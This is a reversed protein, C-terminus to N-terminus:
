GCRLGERPVQGRLLYADVADDICGSGRRYATHGDGDYTLLHGNELERALGQAWPYPTAPDRTTGVVVIPGSGHARLPEAHGTSRVPWYACPLESWALFAGWTPAAQRYRPLSRQVAALGGPDPRDLCNVAYIVTNANSRYGDPGRDTLADALLLLTSGDGSLAAQLAQRLVPWYQDDYMAAAVGLVGRGETLPRNPDRTRLPRSDLGAMLGQLRRTASGVDSGLPCTQRAVCDTIFSRTAQEFGQAQGLNVADADLAPDLAGDLVFRGVNGPFEDAYTAGLFTGYSKGLYNLRRDGLVARLVDMDRAAEATDVHALLEGGGVKCRAALDRYLAVASRVEAADDPTPDSGILADTQADDLCKLPDSEGVGRPDFGVVDFRRRVAESVVTSARRAYDVGSGGPGGPNLVLSGIRDDKRSAPLRVVSLRLTAGSPRRYDVPVEVRTCEFGGDCGAWAPRQAYFRDLAKPVPAPAVTTTPNATAGGAASSASPGAPAPDEQVGSGTCGAVLALLAAGAAVATRRHPM